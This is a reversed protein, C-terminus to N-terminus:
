RRESVTGETYVHQYFAGDLGTFTVIKQGSVETLDGKFGAQVFQIFRLLNRNFDEADIEDTVILDGNRYVEFTYVM